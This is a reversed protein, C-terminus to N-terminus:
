WGDMVKLNNQISTLYTKSGGKKKSAGSNTIKVDGRVIWWKLHCDSMLSKFFRIFFYQIFINHM